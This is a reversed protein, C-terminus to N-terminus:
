FRCAPYCIYATGDWLFWVSALCLIWIMNHQTEIVHTIGFSELCM